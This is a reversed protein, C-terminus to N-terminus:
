KLLATNFLEVPVQLGYYFVAVCFITMGAVIGTGRRWGISRSAAVALAITIALAPVLGLTRLTLGFAVPALGIFVLARPNVGSPSGQGPNRAGFLIAAGLVILALCLALPFFGPGMEAATGIDLSSLTSAAFFLGIGLFFLGSTLDDRNWTMPDGETGAGSAGANEPMVIMRRGPPMTPGM